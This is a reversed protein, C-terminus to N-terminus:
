DMVDDIIDQIEELLTPPINKDLEAKFKLYFNIATKLTCINLPILKKRGIDPIYLISSEISYKILNISNKNEINDYVNKIFLLFEQSTLNLSENIVIYKIPKYMFQFRLLPTINKPVIKTESKAKSEKQLNVLLRKLGEITKKDLPVEEYFENEICEKLEDRSMPMLLPKKFNPFIAVENPTFVIKLQQFNSVVRNVM